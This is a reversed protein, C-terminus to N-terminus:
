QLRNTRNIRDILERIKEHGEIRPNIELAKSFHFLAKEPNHRQLYYILGAQLYAPGSEPRLRIVEKLAALSKEWEKQRSLIVALNYFAKAYDPDLRVAARYAAVAEKRKGRKALANGLNYYAPALGPDLKVARRLTEIAQDTEGKQLLHLGLNTLYRGSEGERSLIKEYERAAEETRGTEELLNALNNRAEFLSPDLNLARRYARIAARNEGRRRRIEALTNYARPYDPKLELARQCFKEAKELRNLNKYGIALNVMAEPYDPVARLAKELVRVAELYKGEQNLIFGLNNLPRGKEPSKAATDRWLSLEDKWIRNRQFSLLSLLIILSVISVRTWKLQLRNAPFLFTVGALPLYLRHEFILDRIPILSSEPLLALLFFVIGFGASVKKEKILVRGSILFSVVLLLSFMWQPSFPSRFLPYDYDLNQRLPLFLLRLYTATVRVQTLAYEIQGPAPRGGMTEPVSGTAVAFDIQGSDHYHPNDSYVMVTFPIVLFLLSFAALRRIKGKASKREFLVEWLIIAAPLSIAMEKCFMALFGALGAGAFFRFSHDQRGRAYYLLALLYFFAALLTARQAIYSVAQTQVPHLAFVAAGAGAPFLFRNTIRNGSKNIAIALLRYVLFSNAAHILLNVLHYGFPDVGGLQYNLYFSFNTIFRTPWEEWIAKLPRSSKFARNELISSRDDFHFSSFLTQGYVIFILIIIALCFTLSAPRRSKSFHNTIGM